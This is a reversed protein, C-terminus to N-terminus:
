YDYCKYNSKIVLEPKMFLKDPAKGGSLLEATIDVAAKAQLFQNQHIVGDLSGEELCSATKDFLDVGIVKVREPLNMEKLARCVAPAVYSSAFIGDAWSSSYLRKVLAYAEDMDDMTKHIGIINLGYEAAGMKFSRVNEAHISYLPQHGYLMFASKCGLMSLFQAAIRSCAGADVSVACDPRLEEPCNVLTVLPKNGKLKNLKEKLAASGSPDAIIGDSKLM